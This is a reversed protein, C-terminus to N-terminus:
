RDKVAPLIHDRLLSFGPQADTFNGATTVVVMNLHPVVFIFQGGYGWAFFIDNTRLLNAVESGDRFRWWQYGYDYGNNTAIHKKTSLAVWQELVVQKTGIRGNHLYLSGFNAMDIPRSHLGWGTNTIGGPGADWPPNSIGLSVFLESAAFNAATTGVSEQLIGSLLMTVGSSYIFREGPAATMPLNLMFAMWDGSNYLRTADNGPQNYPISWEDWQLGATMTLLNELTIAQKRADLNDIIAYQPFFELLKQDTSQVFGQQLAIGVLASTVSKTVSYILQSQNRDYGNFYEELVLVDNRAILVSHIDGFHGLDIRSLMKTLLIGDLNQAEAARMDRGSGDSVSNVNDSCGSFALGMLLLVSIALKSMKAMIM